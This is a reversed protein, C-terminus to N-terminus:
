ELMNYYKIPQIMRSKQNKPEYLIIKQCHLETKDGGGGM